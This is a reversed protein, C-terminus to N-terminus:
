AASGTARIWRKKRWVNALRGSACIARGVNDLCVLPGARVSPRRQFPECGKGDEVGGAHCAGLVSASGRAPNTLMAPLVPLALLSYYRARGCSGPAIRARASTQYFRRIASRLVRRYLGVFAWM